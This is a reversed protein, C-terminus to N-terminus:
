QAGQPYKLKFLKHYYKPTTDAPIGLEHVLQWLAQYDFHSPLGGPSFRSHRCTFCIEVHAIPRDAKDYFVFAHHPVYCATRGQRPTPTTLAKLLRDAQDNSLVVGPGNLLGPHISGDKQFFSVNKGVECAYAFGRVRAFPKTPWYPPVSDHTGHLTLCGPLSAGAAVAGFARLFTLRNMM